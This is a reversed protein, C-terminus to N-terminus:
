GVRCELEVSTGPWKWEAAAGTARAEHQQFSKIIFIPITRAVPGPCMETVATRCQLPHEHLVTAACASVYFFGM